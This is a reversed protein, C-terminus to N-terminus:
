YNKQRISFEISHLLFPHYYAILVENKKSWFSIHEEITQMAKLKHETLLVNCHLRKIYM